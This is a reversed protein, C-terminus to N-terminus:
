AAVQQRAQRANNRRIRLSLWILGRRLKRDQEALERELAGPATSYRSPRGTWTLPAMARVIFRNLWRLAEYTEHPIPPSPARRAAAADRLDAKTIQDQLWTPM